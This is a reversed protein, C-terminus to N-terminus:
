VFLELLTTHFIVTNSKGLRAFGSASIRIPSLVNFSAIYLFSDCFCGLSSSDGPGALIWRM